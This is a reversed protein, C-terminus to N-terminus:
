GVVTHMSPALGVLQARACWWGGSGQCHGRSSYVHRHCTGAAEPFCGLETARVAAQPGSNPAIELRQGRGSLVHM